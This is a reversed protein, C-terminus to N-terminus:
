VRSGRVTSPRSDVQDGLESGGQSGGRYKGPDRAGEVLTRYDQLNRMCDKRGVYPAASYPRPFKIAACRGFQFDHMAGTM